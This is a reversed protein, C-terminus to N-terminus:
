RARRFYHNSAPLYMLVGAVITAVLNVASLIDGGLTNMILGILALAGIVTLVIRAWNKGRLMFFAFLIHLLGAIVGGIATSIPVISAMSQEAAALSAADVPRTGAIISVVALLVGTLVWLWFSATVTTPAATRGTASSM